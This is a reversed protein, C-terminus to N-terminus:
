KAWDRPLLFEKELRMELDGQPKAQHWRALPPLSMLIAETRGGSQLGFLTGRDCVLNFEVYRGRRYQQWLLECESYPMNHRRKVIPLYAPLFADGVARVVAFAHSYSEEDFDDFFVGGIGRQEQRHPIYFYEDCRQKFQPYLATDHADLAEKCTLHFHRCDDEYGYYPTLDMGGGFWWVDGVTFVRVNMHVTPCHPNKPHAVLSVGAAEYSKGAINPRRSSAAKPLSDGAVNSFNVGARDFVAGSELSMSRGSGLKSRWTDVVFERGDIAALAETLTEQLSFLYTRVLDMDKENMMFIIKYSNVENEDTCFL